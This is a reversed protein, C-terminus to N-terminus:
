EPEKEASKLLAARNELRRRVVDVKVTAFGASELRRNVADLIAEAEKTPRLISSAGLELEIATILAVEKPSAARKERASKAQKSLTFHHANLSNEPINNNGQLARQLLIKAFKTAMKRTDPDDISEICGLLGSFSAYMYHFYYDIIM